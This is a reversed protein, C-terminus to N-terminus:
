SALKLQTFLMWSNLPLFFSDINHNMYVAFSVMICLAILQTSFAGIEQLIGEQPQVFARKLFLFRGTAFTQHM